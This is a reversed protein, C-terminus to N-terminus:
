FSTRPAYGPGPPQANPVVFGGKDPDHVDVGRTSAAFAGFMPASVGAVVTAAFLLRLLKPSRM